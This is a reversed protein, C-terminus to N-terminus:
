RHNGWGQGWKKLAEAILDGLEESAASITAVSAADSLTINKKLGKLEEVIADGAKALGRRMVMPNAGASIM